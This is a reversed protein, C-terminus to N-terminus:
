QESVRKGNPKEQNKYKAGVADVVVGWAQPQVVRVAIVELGTSVGM